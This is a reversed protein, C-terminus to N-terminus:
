GEARFPRTLLNEIAADVSSAGELIAAVATAIPMEVGAEGPWRSWRRRRSRAKPSAARPARTTGAARGQRARHRAFLQAVAPESCTLILDGLGSLGTLTEPRAGLAHGFRFSSPSAAPPSRRRRAPASAVAPWSGPRSPWCTRPPAASRSAACMPRIIPGSRPRASRAARADAALSRRRAALTVATPLGRAVDSPSARGRCSRPCRPRCRMRRDDRDHLTATGREIGKACAIVPTGAALARGRRRLPACRSRRCRWCSRMRRRWAAASPAAIAVRDDIRVARCARARGRRAIARRGGSRPSVLTVRAAPARRHVNALATGWAGAGIVAIREFAM